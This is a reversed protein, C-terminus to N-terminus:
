KKFNIKYIQDKVKEKIVKFGLSEGLRVFYQIDQAQGIRSVGYGTKIVKIPTSIELQVVFIDKRGGDYEPIIADWLIFEGNKKLVRYIEKFVKEHHNNDIYMMTFFSTVADFSNDLFSLEKADM